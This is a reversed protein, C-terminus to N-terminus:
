ERCIGTTSLLMYMAPLKEAAGAYTRGVVDQDKVAVALVCHDLGFVGQHSVHRGICSGVSGCLCGHELVRLLIGYCQSKLCAKPVVLRRSPDEHDGQCLRSDGVVTYSRMQTNGSPFESLYFYVAM